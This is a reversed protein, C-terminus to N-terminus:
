AAGCADMKVRRETAASLYKAIQVGNLAWYMNVALRVSATQIAVQTIDMAAHIGAISVMSYLSHTDGSPMFGVHMASTEDSPCSIYTSITFTM